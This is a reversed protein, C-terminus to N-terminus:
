QVTVKTMKVPSAPRDSGPENPASAIKDVVDMGEVVRGFVTYNPSLPYNQHMIFFQSTATEPTGRNAMAVLGRAYGGQYLPSTRNIENPLPKGDATRGGTGNGNPDGGQIMFGKITRHFILGNYFGSEALKRFNEATVPADKDLLEIKITGATTDLVVTHKQANTAAAQNANATSNTNAAPAPQPTVPVASNRNGPAATNKNGDNSSCASLALACLAVAVVALWTRWHTTRNMLSAESVCAAAVLVPQM